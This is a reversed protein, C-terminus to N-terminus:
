WSWNLCNHLITREKKCCIHCVFRHIYERNAVLKERADDSSMVVTPSCPGQLAPLLTFPSSPHSLSLLSFPFSDSTEESPVQPVVDPLMIEPLPESQLPTQSFSARSPSAVAERRRPISETLISSDNPFNLKAKDGHLEAAAQDYWKAAEWESDYTGM